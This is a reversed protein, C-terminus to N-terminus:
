GLRISHDGTALTIIHKTRAKLFFTTASCWHLKDPLLPIRGYSSIWPAARDELM